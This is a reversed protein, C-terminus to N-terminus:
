SSRIVEWPRRVLRDGGAPGAVLRMVGHGLAVMTVYTASVALVPALGPAFVIWEPFKAAVLYDRPPGLIAVASLFVALGRWGFRRAM